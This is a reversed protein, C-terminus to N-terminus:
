GREVFQIRIELILGKIQQIERGCKAQQQQEIKNAKLRNFPCSSWPLRGAEDEGEKKSSCFAETIENQDHNSRETETVTETETWDRSVEYRVCLYDFHLGRIHERERELKLNVLDIKMQYAHSNKLLKGCECVHVPVCVCVCMIIIVFNVQLKGSAVCKFHLIYIRFLYFNCTLYKIHRAFCLTCLSLSLSLSLNITFIAASMDFTAM